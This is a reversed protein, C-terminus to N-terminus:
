IKVLIGTVEAYIKEVPHYHITSHIISNNRCVFFEDGSSPLWYNKVTKIFSFSKTFFFEV